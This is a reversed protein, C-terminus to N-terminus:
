AAIREKISGGVILRLNAAEKASTAHMERPQGDSGEYTVIHTVDPPVAIAHGEWGKLCYTIEANM